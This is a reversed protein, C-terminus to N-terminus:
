TVQFEKEKPKILDEPLNDFVRGAKNLMLAAQKELTTLERNMAKGFCNLHWWSDTEMNEYAWDEIHTYREFKENIEKKCGKCIKM